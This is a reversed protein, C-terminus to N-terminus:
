LEYRYSGCHSMQLLIVKKAGTPNSLELLTFSKDTHWLRTGSRESWQSNESSKSGHSCLWKRVMRFPYSLFVKAGRLAATNWSAPTMLSLHASGKYFVSWLLSLFLSIYSSLSVSVFSPFPPQSVFLGFSVTIHMHRVIVALPRRLKFAVQNDFTVSNYQHSILWTVLQNREPLAPNWKVPWRHCHCSLDTEM